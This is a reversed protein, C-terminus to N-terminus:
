GYECELLRKTGPTISSVRNSYREPAHKLLEMTPAAELVLIKHDQFVPDKGLFKLCFRKLM